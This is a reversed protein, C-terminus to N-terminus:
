YEAFRLRMSATDTPVQHLTTDRGAVSRLHRRLVSVYTRARSFSPNNSRKWRVSFLSVSRIREHADTILQDRYLLESTTWGGVLQTRSTALARPRPEMTNM